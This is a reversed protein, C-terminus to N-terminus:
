NRIGFLKVDIIIVYYYMLWIVTKFNFGWSDFAVVSEWTNKECASEDIILAWLNYFNCVKVRIVFKNKFLFIKYHKKLYGSDLSAFNNLPLMGM